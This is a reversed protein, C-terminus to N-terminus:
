QQRTPIRLQNLFAETAIRQGNMNLHVFDTFMHNNVLSSIRDVRSLVM